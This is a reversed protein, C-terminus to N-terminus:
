SYGHGSGNKTVTRATLKVDQIAQRPVPPSGHSLAGLALMGLTAAAAGCAVTVILLALWVPLFTALAAAITALAFGAAFLGLVAASAAMAVGIGLAALKEKVEAVALRAELRAISRAHAAVETVAAGVGGDAERTHM